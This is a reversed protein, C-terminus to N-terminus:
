LSFYKWLSMILGSIIMLGGIGIVLIHRKKDLLSLTSWSKINLGIFFGLILGCTIGIFFGIQMVALDTM